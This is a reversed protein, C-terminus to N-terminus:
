KCIKLKFHEEDVNKLEAIADLWDQWLAVDGPRNNECLSLVGLLAGIDDAGTMQYHKELFLFMAKYAEKESLLM